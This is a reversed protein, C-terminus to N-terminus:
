ETPKPPAHRDTLKQTGNRESADERLAIRCGQTSM